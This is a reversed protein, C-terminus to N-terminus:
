LDDKPVIHKPWFRSMLAYATFAGAGVAFAVVPTGTAIGRTVGAAVGATEAAGNFLARCGTSHPAVLISTRRVLFTM